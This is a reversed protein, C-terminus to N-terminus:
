SPIGASASSWIWAYTLVWLGVTLVVYAVNDGTISASLGAERLTAMVVDPKEDQSLDKGAQYMYNSPTGAYNPPTSAADPSPTGRFYRSEQPSAREQPPPWSATQEQQPLYLCPCCSACAHQMVNGLRSLFDSCTASMEGERSGCCCVDLVLPRLSGVRVWYIILAAVLLLAAILIFVVAPHLRMPNPVSSSQEVAAETARAEKGADASLGIKPATSAAPKPVMSGVPELNASPVHRAEGTELRVLWRGTHDDFHELFARRGNLWSRWGHIQVKLGPMWNGEENSPRTVDIPGDRLRDGHRDARGRGLEASAAMRPAIAINGMAPRMVCTLLFM